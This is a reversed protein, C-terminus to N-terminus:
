LTRTYSYKYQLRSRLKNLDEKPETLFDISDLAENEDTKESPDVIKWGKPLARLTCAKGTKEVKYADYASYLFFLVPALALILEM